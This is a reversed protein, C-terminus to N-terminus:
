TAQLQLHHNICQRLEQISFPKQLFNKGPELPLSTELSAPNNGSMLIYKLDPRIELLRLVLQDGFLGPMVIDSLVLNIQEQQKEYIAMAEHGSAAPIVKYGAAQLCQGLFERVSLDDDVLLILGSQLSLQSHM